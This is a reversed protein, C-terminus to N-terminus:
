RPPWHNWGGGSAPKRQTAQGMELGFGTRIVGTTASISPGRRPSLRTLWCFQVRRRTTEETTSACLVRLRRPRDQLEPPLDPPSAYTPSARSYGLPLDPHLSCTWVDHEVAPVFGGAQILRADRIQTLFHERLGPNLRCPLVIRFCRRRRTCGISQCDRVRANATQSM